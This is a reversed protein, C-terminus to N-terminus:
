GVSWLQHRHLGTWLQHRPPSMRRQRLGTWLQHRPPPVRRQPATAARAGDGPPRQSHPNRPRQGNAGPLPVFDQGLALTRAEQDPVNLVAGCKDAVPAELERPYGWARLYAGDAGLGTFGLERLKPVFSVQATLDYGNNLAGHARPMMSTLISGLSPTTIPAPAFAHEFVLSEALFADLAPTDVDEDGWAGLHDARLTDVTILLVDARPGAAPAFGSALLAVPLQAVPEALPLLPLQPGAAAAPWTM